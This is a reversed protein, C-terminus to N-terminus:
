GIVVLDEPFRLRDTSILVGVGVAQQIFADASEPELWIEWDVSDADDPFKDQPSRWLARLGAEVIAELSQVLDANKPRGPIQKGDKERDPMDETRFEEVKKRLKEVGKGTAFVTAIETTIGNEIEVDSRLLKIGSSGLSDKKLRENPRSTVELYLGPLAEAVVSPLEDIARLLAQAHRVRDLVDSPSKGGGGGKSQFPYPKGLDKLLFHPLDRPM